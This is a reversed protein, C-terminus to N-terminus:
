PLVEMFRTIGKVSGVGNAQMTLYTRRAGSVIPKPVSIEVHKHGISTIDPFTALLTAGTVSIVVGYYVKFRIFTASGMATVQTMLHFNLNAGPLAAFEWADQLDFQEGESNATALPGGANLRGMPLLISTAAM